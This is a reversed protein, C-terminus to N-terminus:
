PLRCPQHSIAFHRSVAWSPPIAMSFQVLILETFRSSSFLSGNEFTVISM